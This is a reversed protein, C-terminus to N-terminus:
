RDRPSTSTYLLCTYYIDVDDDSAVIIIMDQDNRSIRPPSLVKPARYLEVTTILPAALASDVTFRVKNTTVDDLRLIRKRGITTERAIEKWNGQEDMVEVHFTEVRDRICM